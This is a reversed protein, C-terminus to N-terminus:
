LDDEGQVKGEGMGQLALKLEEKLVTPVEAGDEEKPPSVGLSRGPDNYLEAYFEWIRNLIKDRNTLLKSDKEKIAIIEKKGLM